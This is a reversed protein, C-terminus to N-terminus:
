PRPRVETETPRDPRLLTAADLPRDMHALASRMPASSLAISGALSDSYDIILYLPSAISLASLVVVVYVVPSPPSTMGFIAFIICLWTTLILLFPWAITSHAEFILHWRQAIAVEIRNRLAAAIQRQADDAPTLRTIMVDLRALMAGLSGAEIGDAPTGQVVVPYTGTPAPESRWSDALAAATYQRLLLRAGDAQPGYLILKHDLEILDAAFASLDDNLADFRQKANSTLLGLVLAAFTLLMGMLLRISDVAERSLHRDDIRRRLWLGAAASGLMALILALTYAFEM